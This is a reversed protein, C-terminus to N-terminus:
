QTDMTPHPEFKPQYGIRKLHSWLQILPLGEIATPDSCELKEILLIGHSEFKYSGACDLPSDAGVYARIEDDTLPRLRVVTRNEFELTQGSVILCVATILEHSRGQMKKLQLFAKESTKPKGLIEKDLAVLQDAGIVCNLNNALSQAKGKALFRAMELPPRSTAQALDENFNPALSSFRIQLRNMLLKRYPSTSALILDPPPNQKTMALVEAM